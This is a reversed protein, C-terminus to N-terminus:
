GGLPACAESAAGWAALAEGMWPRGGRGARRRWQPMPRARNSTSCAARPCNVDPAGGPLWAPSGAGTSRDQQAADEDAAELMSADLPQAHAAETGARM